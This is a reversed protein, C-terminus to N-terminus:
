AKSGEGPGLHALLMGVLKEMPKPRQWRLQNIRPVAVVALFAGNGSGNRRRLHASASRGREGSLAGTSKLCHRRDM